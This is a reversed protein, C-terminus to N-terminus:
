FSILIKTSNHTREFVDAHCGACKEAADHSPKNLFSGSHAVTKDSTGDTGNHCFTCEIKGHFGNKFETYGDGGLYVRDYPEIHPTEGGCGGGGTSPPDPTYVAKLTVYSTHCGECSNIAKQNEVPTVIPDENKDACGIVVFATIFFVLYWIKNLHKM